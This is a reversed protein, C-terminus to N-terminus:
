IKKPESAHEGHKLFERPLKDVPLRAVFQLLRASVSKETRFQGFWCYLTSFAIQLFNIKRIQIVSFVDATKIVSNRIFVIKTFRITARLRLDWAVSVKNINDSNPM